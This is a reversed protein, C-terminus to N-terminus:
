LVRARSALCLCSFSIRQGFSTRPTSGGRLSLDVGNCTRCSVVAYESAPFQEPGIEAWDGFNLALKPPPKPKKAPAPRAGSSSRSGSDAAECEMPTKFGCLRSVLQGVERLPEHDAPTSDHLQM